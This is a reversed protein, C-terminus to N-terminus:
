GVLKPGQVLKCRVFLSLDKVVDLLSDVLQVVVDDERLKGLRHTFDTLVRKFLALRANECRRLGDHRNDELLTQL